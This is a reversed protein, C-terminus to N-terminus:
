ESVQWTWVSVQPADARLSMRGEEFLPADGYRAVGAEIGPLRSTALDVPEHAHRACHVLAVEGPSERLFVLADDDAHM